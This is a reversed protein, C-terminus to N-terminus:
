LKKMLKYYEGDEDAGDFLVTTFGKKRYLKLAAINDKNVGITIEKYGMNRIQEVMFDILVGGIGNRRREKKVILRSLYIRQNAVTYDGDMMDFVYAIEGIFEGNQKYVYVVRNGSEIEKRFFDTQPDASMDWINNCKYYDALALKEIKYSDM